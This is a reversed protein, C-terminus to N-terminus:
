LQAGLDQVLSSLRPKFAGPRFSLGHEEPGDILKYPGLSIALLDSVRKYDRLLSYHILDPDNLKTYIEYELKLTLSKFGTLGAIVRFAPEEELPM